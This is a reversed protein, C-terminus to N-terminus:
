KIRYSLTFSMVPWFQLLNEANTLTDDNDSVTKNVIKDDLNPSEFKLNKGQYIVGLEFKFGVRRKTITRGLGFGFYPKVVNGIKLSASLTGDRNPTLGYEGSLLFDTVNSPLHGYASIKNQGVFLGVTFHFIGSRMPYLDVLLNVNPFSLKLKDLTLVHGPGFGDRSDDVTLDAPRYNYWLYNFGLRAKINPHLSTNFDAGVGNTGAKIGVGFNELLGGAYAPSSDGRQALAVTSCGCVAVILLIFVSKKM